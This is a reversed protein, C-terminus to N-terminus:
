KMAQLGLATALGNNGILIGSRRFRYIYGDFSGDSEQMELLCTLDREACLGARAAAIIRLALTLADGPMGLREQIAEKFTDLIEKPVDPISPLLRALAHLFTEATVYYDTGNLYERNKLVQFVWALTEKVEMGRGNRFFFTLINVACVADIRPRTRDYYLQLIGDQNRYTLMDDLIHDCQERSIEPAITLGLSTTELDDRDSHAYTRLFSDDWSVLEGQFFNWRGEHGELKVLDSNGTAELIMLQAFNEKFLANNSTHSVYTGRNRELYAWAKQI